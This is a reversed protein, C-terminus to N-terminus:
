LLYGVITKQEGISNHLIHCILFQYNLSTEENLLNNHMKKYLSM